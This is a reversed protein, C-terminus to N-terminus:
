QGGGDTGGAKSAACVDCWTPSCGPNGCPSWARPRAAKKAKAKPATLVLASCLWVTLGDTWIVRGVVEANVTGDRKRVPVPSGPTPVGGTVRLGWAGSRLKTYTAAIV